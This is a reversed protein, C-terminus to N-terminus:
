SRKSSTPWGKPLPPMGKIDPGHPQADFTVSELIQEFEAEDFSKGDPIAGVVFLTWGETKHRVVALAGQMPHSFAIVPVPYRKWWYHPKELAIHQFHGPLYLIETTPTTLRSPAEHNFGHIWVGSPTPTVPDSFLVPLYYPMTFEDGIVPAFLRFTEELPRSSVKVGDLNVSLHEPLKLFILLQGTDQRKYFVLERGDDPWNTWYHGRGFPYQPPVTYKCFNYRADTDWIVRGWRGVGYQLPATVFKIAAILSFLGAIIVGLKM